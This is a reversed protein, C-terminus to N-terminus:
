KVGTDLPNKYIGRSTLKKTGSDFLDPQLLSPDIRRIVDDQSINIGKEDIHIIDLCISRLTEGILKSRHCDEPKGESCMIVVSYGLDVAKRLRNIGMKYHKTEAMKAYSIRGEFDYENDSSPRGGLMDGMFIYIIGCRRLLANLRQRTFDPNRSYPRSRVDILYQIGNNQVLEIFNDFSRNGYGISFIQGAM